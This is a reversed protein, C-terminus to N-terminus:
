ARWFPKRCEAEMQARTMSFDAITEDPMAAILRTMQTRERHRELWVRLRFAPSAADRRKGHVAPASIRGALRSARMTARPGPFDLIQVM